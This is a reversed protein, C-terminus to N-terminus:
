ISNISPVENNIPEQANVKKPGRIIMVIHNIAHILMVLGTIPMVVYVYAMSVKAQLSTIELNFLVLDAGYYIFILFLLLSIIEQTLLFTKKLKGKLKSQIFEMGMHEKRKYAIASGIFTMWVLSFRSIEELSAFSTNFFNRGFILFILCVTMVVTIISLLWICIRDSWNSVKSLTLM